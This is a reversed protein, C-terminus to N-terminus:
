KYKFNLSKILLYIRDNKPLKLKFIGLLILTQLLGLFIGGIIDSFWHVGLYLRSLPIVITLISFFIMLVIRLVNNLKIYKRSIIIFLSFYLTIAIMTHASPFSPDNEIVLARVLSPRPANILYKLLFTVIQGIFINAVLFLAINKKKLKFLFYLSVLAIISSFFYNGFSTITVFISNLFDSRISYFLLYIQQNFFDIM